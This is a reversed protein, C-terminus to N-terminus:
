KWRQGFTWHEFELGSQECLSPQSWGGVVESINWIKFSSDMAASALTLHGPSQLSSFKHVHTIHGDLTQTLTGEKTRLEIQHSAHCGGINQQYWHAFAGM